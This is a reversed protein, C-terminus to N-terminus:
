FNLIEVMKKNLVLVTVPESTTESSELFGTGFESELLATETGGADNLYNITKAKGKSGQLWTSIGTVNDGTGTLTVPSVLAGRVEVKAKSCVIELQKFLFLVGVILSPTEALTVLHFEGSLLVVEKADGTSNCPTTGKLVKFFDVAFTGLASLETVLFLVSLGTGELKSGGTTELVTKPATKSEFNFHIPYAENLAVHIDPLTVAMASTATLGFAFMAVLAVGLVKLHRM